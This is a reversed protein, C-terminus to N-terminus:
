KPEQPSARKAAKRARKAEARAVAEADDRKAPPREYLPRTSQPQIAGFADAVSAAALAVALHTAVRSRM